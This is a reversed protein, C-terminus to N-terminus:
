RGHVCCVEPVASLPWSPVTAQAGLQGGEAGPRHTQSCLSSRDRGAAKPIQPEQDTLTRPTGKLAHPWQPPVPAEILISEVHLHWSGPWSGEGRPGGEGAGPPCTKPPVSTLGGRPHEQGNVPRVHDARTRIGLGAGCARSGSHVSSWALGEGQKGAQQSQGRVKVHPNKRSYSRSKPSRAM